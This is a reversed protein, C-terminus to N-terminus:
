FILPTSASKVDMYKETFAAHRRPANSSRDTECLVTSVTILFGLLRRARPVDASVVRIFRWKVTLVLYTFALLAVDDTVIVWYKNVTILQDYIM